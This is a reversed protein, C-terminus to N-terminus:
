ALAYAVAKAMAPLRKHMFDERDIQKTWDDWKMKSDFNIVGIVKGAGDKRLERIPYSFIIRMGAAQARHRTAQDMNCDVDDYVRHDKAVIIKGSDRMGITPMEHHLAMGAVGQAEYIVLEHDPDGVAFGKRWFLQLARSKRFSFLRQKSLLPLTLMVNLRATADPRQLREFEAELFMNITFMQRETAYDQRSNYIEVLGALGFAILPMSWHYSGWVDKWFETTVLFSTTLLSTWLFPRSM